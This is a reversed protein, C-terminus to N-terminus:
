LRPAVGLSRCAREEAELDMSHGPRRKGIIARSHTSNGVVIFGALIMRVSAKELLSQGVGADAAVVGGGVSRLVRLSDRVVDASLLIVLADVVAVM